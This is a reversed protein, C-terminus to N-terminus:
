GSELIFARSVFIFKFFRSFRQIKKSLHKDIICTVKKQTSTKKETKQALTLNTNQNNVTTKYIM